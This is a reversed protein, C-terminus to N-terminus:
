FDGDEGNLHVTDLAWGDAARTYTAFGDYYDRTSHSPGLHLRAGLANLPRWRWRFYAVLRDRGPIVEFRESGPLYERRAVTVIYWDPSEELDTGLAGRGADTIEMTKVYTGNAVGDAIAVMGLGQLLGLAPYRRLDEARDPLQRPCRAKRAHNWQEHGEAIERLVSPAVPPREATQAPASAPVGEPSPTPAGDSSLSARRGCAALPMLAGILLAVASGPRTAGGRRPSLSAPKDVPM